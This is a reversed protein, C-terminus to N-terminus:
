ALTVPKTQAFLVVVFRPPVSLALFYDFMELLVTDSIDLVRLRIKEPRIQNEHLITAISGDFVLNTVELTIDKYHAFLPCTTSFNVSETLTACIDIGSGFNGSKLLYRMEDPTMRCEKSVYYFDVYLKTWFFFVRNDNFWTIM